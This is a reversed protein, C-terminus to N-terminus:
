ADAAVQETPDKVALVSCPAKRLTREAVSGLFVHPLGTLGRTGMVVLQCGTQTALESIVVSPRGRRINLSAEIERAELVEGIDELQASVNAEIKEEVETGFDSAYPIYNRPLDLAHVVDISAGLRQGLAAAWEVARESHISFDVALLIKSIPAGAEPLREKVALVPCDLRRLARETVSGLFADEFGSHGHTGMVILDASKAEAAKGIALVADNTDAIEGTVTLEPGAQKEVGRRAEELMERAGERIGKWVAAPVSTEYPTVILPFGLAHVLHIAANDAKALTLARAYAAQSLPSFDTAVIISQIRDM